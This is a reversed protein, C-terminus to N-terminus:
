WALIVVWSSSKYEALCLKHWKCPAHFVADWSVQFDLVQHHTQRRDRLIGKDGEKSPSPIKLLLFEGKEIRQDILLNRQETHWVRDWENHCKAPEPLLINSTGKGVPFQYCMWDRHRGNFRNLPQPLSLPVILSSPLTQFVHHRLFLFLSSTESPCTTPSVLTSAVCIISLLLSLSPSKYFIIFHWEQSRSSGWQFM